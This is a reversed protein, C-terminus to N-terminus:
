QLLGLLQEAIKAVPLERVDGFVSARNQLSGIDTAAGCKAVDVVVAVGVDHDGVVASRDPQQDVVDAAALM